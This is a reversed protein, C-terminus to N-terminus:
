HPNLQTFKECTSIWIFPAPAHCACLLGDYGHFNTQNITNNIWMQIKTENTGIHIYADAATYLGTMRM